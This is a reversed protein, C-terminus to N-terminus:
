CSGLSMTKDWFLWAQFVATVANRLGKAVSIHIASREHLQILGLAKLVGQSLIFKNIFSILIIKIYLFSQFSIVRFKVIYVMFINIKLHFVHAHKTKCVIWGQLWLPWCVYDLDYRRWTLLLINQEMSFGYALFLLLCTSSSSVYIFVKWVLSCRFCSIVKDWICTFIHLM